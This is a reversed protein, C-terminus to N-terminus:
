RPGVRRGTIAADPSRWVGFGIDFGGVRFRAEPRFTEDLARRVLESRSLGTRLAEAILYDVHEPELMVHSRVRM